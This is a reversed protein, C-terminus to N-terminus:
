LVQRAAERRAEVPDIEQEDDAADGKAQAFSPKPISYGLRKAVLVGAGGVLAIGLLATLAQVIAPLFLLVLLGVTGFAKGGISGIVAGLGAKQAAGAVAKAASAKGPMTGSTAMGDIVSKAVTGAINAAKGM